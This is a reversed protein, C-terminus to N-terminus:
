ELLKQINVWLIHMQYIIITSEDVTFEWRNDTTDYALQLANCGASSGDCNCFYYVVLQFIM